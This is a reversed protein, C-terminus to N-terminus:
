VHPKNARCHKMKFVSASSLTYGLQYCALRTSRFGPTPDRTCVFWSHETEHAEIAVCCEPLGSALPRSWLNPSVQSVHAGTELCLLVHFTWEFKFVYLCFDVNRTKEKFFNFVRDVWSEFEQRLVRPQASPTILSRAEACSPGKMDGVQGARSDNAVPLMSAVPVKNVLYM